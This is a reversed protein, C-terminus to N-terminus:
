NVVKWVLYASAESGLRVRVRYKTGAATSAKCYFIKGKVWTVKNPCNVTVRVNAQNKFGNKINRELKPIKVTGAANAPGITLIPAALLPITVAIATTRRM